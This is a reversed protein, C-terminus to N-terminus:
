MLGEVEVRSQGVLGDCELQLTIIAIRSGNWDVVQLTGGHLVLFFHVAVQVLIDDVQVHEILVSQGRSLVDCHNGSMSSM